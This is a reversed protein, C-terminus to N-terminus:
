RTLGASRRSTVLPISAISIADTRNITTILRNLGAVAALSLAAFIQQATQCSVM